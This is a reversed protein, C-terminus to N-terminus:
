DGAPTPHIRHTAPAGFLIRAPHLRPIHNHKPHHHIFKRREEGGSKGVKKESERERPTHPHAHADRLPPQSSIQSLLAIQEKTDHVHVHSAAHSSDTPLIYTRCFISPPHPTPAEKTPQLTTTTIPLTPQHHQRHHHKVKRKENLAPRSLKKQRQLSRSCVCEVVRHM